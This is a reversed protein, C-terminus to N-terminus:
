KFCNITVTNSDVLGAGVANNKSDMVQYHNGIRFQTLLPQPNRSLNIQGKPVNYDDTIFLNTDKPCNNAFYIAVESESSCSTTFLLFTLAIFKKMIGYNRQNFM